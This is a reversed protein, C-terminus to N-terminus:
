HNYRNYNEEFYDDIENLKTEDDKVGENNAEVAKQTNEFISGSGIVTNIVVGTLILLVIITITLSLLTIGSEKRFIRM